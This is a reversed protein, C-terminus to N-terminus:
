SPSQLLQHAVLALDPWNIQQICWATENRSRTYLCRWNCGACPVPHYLVKTRLTSEHPYPFYRAPLGSGGVAVTPRNLSVGLHYAGSDNSILLEAGALVAILDVGSTQGRLDVLKPDLAGDAPWHLPVPNKKDSVLVVTLQCQRAIKRGARLFNEESWSRRQDSAHLAVVLYAEAPLKVRRPLPPNCILWPRTASVIGLAAMFEAHRELEHLPASQAPILRTYIWDGLLRELPLIFPAHGASGIKQAAGTARILADEVRLMRNYTPQVAMAFRGAVSKLTRGRYSFRRTFLHRDIGEVADVDFHQRAFELHAPHVFLVAQMGGSRFHESLQTVAHGALLLDGWGHLCFIAGAPRQTKRRIRVLVFSDFIFLLAGRLLRLWGDLHNRIKSKVCHVPM